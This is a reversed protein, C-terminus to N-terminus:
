LSALRKCLSVIKEKIDYHHNGIFLGTKDVYTSNPFELVDNVHPLLKMVPQKTFNGTVIPRYEIRMEELLSILDERSVSNPKPIISFGFWSSVSNEAVEQTMMWPVGKSHELWHLVNSLRGELIAPLKKLQELGLLSAIETPRLNYGPLLFRFMDDFSKGSKDELHNEDGLDRTWGHARLALMKEYLDQDDTLCFGGEITSIHHSFFTSFSSVDGVTGAQKGNQSAGMSECNDEFFFLNNQDCIERLRRLNMPNGLLNVGVVGATKENIASELTAPSMNLTSLEIDVFKLTFGAQVVPYFTTSWGVAPVIVENRISKAVSLGIATMGLLNASSGSNCFVAFKSGFHKSLSAEFKKTEPGMTLRDKYALGKLVELEEKGWTSTALPWWSDNPTNM